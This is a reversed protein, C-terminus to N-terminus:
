NNIDSWLLVLCHFFIIIEVVLNIKNHNMTVIIVILIVTVIIMTHCCGYCMIIIVFFNDFLLTILCSHKYRVLPSQIATKSEEYANSQDRTIYRQNNVNSHACLCLSKLLFKNGSTMRAKQVCATKM